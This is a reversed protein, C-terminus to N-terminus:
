AATPNPRLGDGSTARDLLYCSLIGAGYAVLDYPDFYGSYWELYQIGEIMLCAGFLLLATRGASFFSEAARPGVPRHLGRFFMYFLAPGVVDRVYSGWFGPGQFLETALLTLATLLFAVRWFSVHVGGM